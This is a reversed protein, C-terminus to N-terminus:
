SDPDLMDEFRLWSAYFYLDVYGVAGNRNKRVLLETAGAIDQAPEYLDERYLALVVDAAERLLGTRGDFDELTPRRDARARLGPLEVTTLIARDQEVALRKLERIRAPIQSENLTGLAAEFSDIVVLGAGPRAEILSGLDMPDSPLREVMPLCDRLRVAAAGATARAIDTLTGQRLEDVAVRSEIAIVRELLRDPTMEGSLFLVGQGAGAARVSFGLALASKGSGVDGALVILDGRRFGGGLMRDVSPFGSHVTDRAQEGDAVADVRALLLSLPSIDTSRLM